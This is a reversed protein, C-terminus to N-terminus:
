VKFRTVMDKLKKALVGLNQSSDNMQSISDAIEGTTNNLESIDKAIEMSVMSSQAVNENVEQIGSSIQAVNDATGKITASQQEIASAISTVYENVDNNVKLIQGIESVTGQTSHQIGDIQEKIEITADATQRALDKIENAVVAFGKGADGARAAEITANLALLNTQESIKTITETVKGIERAAHGLEDVKAAVEEAKSVSELTIMRAKDANGAIDNITATIEETSTAVMGVNTSAEEMAAAISSQNSSMEESAASVTSAKGSLQASSDSVQEFLYSLDTSAQNLTESNQAINKIMGHLKEVFTNFSKALQGVEDESNLLLRATLDGEGEAIDSLGADVKLIPKILSKTFIYIIPLLVLVCVVAILVLLKVMQRTNANAIAMSYLSVISAVYKADAHIPLVGQYYGVDNIRVDSLLIMPDALSRQGESNKPTHWSVNQNAQLTGISFGKETFIDIDTGSFNAIRNIFANDIRKIAVAYACQKDVVVFDEGKKVYEKSFIPVLSTLCLNGDIEEYFLAAISPNGGGERILKIKPDQFNNIAKWEESALVKIADLTVGMIASKNLDYIYGMLFNGDSQNLAFARLKGDISYIAVKWLQSNMGVRGLELATKRSSDDYESLKDGADIIYKVRAGMDNMSTMRRTDALLKDGLAMAEERYINLAKEIANNSATRNQNKIVISVVITSAAMVLIVMTLSGSLLKTKLRMSSM